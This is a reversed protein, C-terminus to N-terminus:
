GGQATTLDDAANSAMTQITTAFLEWQDASSASVMVSVGNKVQVYVLDNDGQDSNEYSVRLAADGAQPPSPLTAGNATCHKAITNATQMFAAAAATSPFVYTYNAIALTIDTGQSNAFSTTYLINASGTATTTTPDAPACAWGSLAEASGDSTYTGPGLDTKTLLAATPNFAVSPVPTPSSSPGATPNPAPTPTPSTHSAALYIGTGGAAVIVIAIVAAIVTNAALWASFSGRGRTEQPGPPPPPALPSGPAQAHVSAAAAAAVPPVWTMTKDDDVPPAVVAAVPATGTKALELDRRFETATAYRQEPTKALAKELVRCVADPVGLVRLDPPPDISIRKFIATTTESPGRAFPPKGLIMTMLTSALGYVDTGATRPAGDLVEPATHAVSVMVAVSRTEPGETFAALGFDSLKAAGYRSFLVNEPKVDRHLVHASHAAELASALGDGIQVTDQWGYPGRKRIADALSGGTMDEMVIYPRDAVTFGATIIGVIGPHGFLAGMARVERDFRQRFENDLAAALVKVAVSQDFGQRRGRYVVAFGGRGIEATEVIGPIGLDVAPM